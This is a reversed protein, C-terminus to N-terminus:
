GIEPTLNSLIVAWTGCKSCLCFKSNRDPLAESLREWLTDSGTLASALESAVSGALLVRLFLM